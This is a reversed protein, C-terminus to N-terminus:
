GRKMIFYNYDMENFFYIYALQTQQLQSTFGKITITKVYYPNVCSELLQENLEQKLKRKEHKSGFVLKHIHCHPKVGISTLYDFRTKNMMM